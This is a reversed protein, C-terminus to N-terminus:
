NMIKDWMDQTMPVMRKKDLQTQSYGAAEWWRRPEQKLTCLVVIKINGPKANQQSFKWSFSWPTFRSLWDMRILVGNQLRQWGKGSHSHVTSTRGRTHTEECTKKKRGLYQGEHQMRLKYWENGACMDGGLFCEKGADWDKSTSLLICNM